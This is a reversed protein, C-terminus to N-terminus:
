RLVETLANCGCFVIQELQWLEAVMFFSLVNYLIDNWDSRIRFDAIDNRAKSFM